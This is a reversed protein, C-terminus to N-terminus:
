SGTRALTRSLQKPATHLAGSVHEENPSPPGVSMMLGYLLFLPISTGLSQLLPNFLAAVM